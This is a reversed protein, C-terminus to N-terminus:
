TTWDLEKAQYVCSTNARTARLLRTWSWTFAWTRNLAAESMVHHVAVSSPSTVEDSSGAEYYHGTKLDESTLGLRRLCDLEMLSHIEHIDHVSRGHEGISIYKIGPTHSVLWGFFIEEAYAAFNGQTVAALQLTANHVLPSALLWGALSKSIAFFPGIGFPFPGVVGSTDNCVWPSPLLRAKPLLKSQAQLAMSRTFGCCGCIDQLSPNYSAWQYHGILAPANPSSVRKLFSIARQVVVFTDLDAKAIFSASPFQAAAFVFWALTKESLYDKIGDRVNPLLEVDGFSSCEGRLKSLLRSRAHVHSAGPYVVKGVVFRYLFGGRQAQEASKLPIRSYARRQAEPPSSLLGLVLVLHREVHKEKLSDSAATHAVHAVRAKHLQAAHRQKKIRLGDELLAWDPLALASSTNAENSLMQGSRFFKDEKPQQPCISYWSCDHWKPSVSIYRCGSCSQCHRLCATVALQWSTSEHPSLPWSGKGATPHCESREATEGCHGPQSATLWGRASSPM